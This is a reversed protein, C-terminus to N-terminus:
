GHAPLSSQPNGSCQCCPVAAAASWAIVACRSCLHGYRACSLFLPHTLPWLTLSLSTWTVKASVPTTPLFYLVCDVRGDQLERRPMDLKAEQGAYEEQQTGMYDALTKAAVKPDGKIGPTEQPVPIVKLLPMDASASGHM